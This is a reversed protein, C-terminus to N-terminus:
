RLDPQEAAQLDERASIQGQVSGDLLALLDNEIGNPSTEVIRGLELGSRHVIFTPVYRLDQGRVLEAPEALGRQVGIYRVRFPLQGGANDVGRWLRAMERRSDSCWTGLFVTVELEAEVAQLAAIAQPDPKAEIEAAVWDPLTSELQERSLYGMLVATEEEAGGATAGAAQLVLLLHVSLLLVCRGISLM